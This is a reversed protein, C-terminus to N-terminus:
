IILGSINSSSDDNDDESDEFEDAGFEKWDGAGSIDSSLFYITIISLSKLYSIITTIITIIIISIIICSLHNHYM